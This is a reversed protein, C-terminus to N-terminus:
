EREASSESRENRGHCESREEVGAPTSSELISDVNSRPTGHFLVDPPKVPTYGLEVEISHGQRARIQARDPAFEFRQKPCHETVHELQDMTMSLEHLALGDLLQGVDAWGADDLQIGISDPRHRLVFSLRKSIATREERNM